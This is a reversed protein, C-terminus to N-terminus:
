AGAEHDDCAPIDAVFCTGKGNTSELWLRGGHREVIERSLYLGLGLGSRHSAAHAQFYREFIREQQEAPVGIGQDRVGLRAREPTPKTLEVEIRGGDPSYKIANDLLNTVVQEFRFPDVRAYIEGGAALSFQHRETQAQAQEVVRRVLPTLNEVHRDLELRGSDLRSMELLQNVLDSLTQAQRHITHVARQYRAPDLEQGRDSVRMLLEAFGRLSTVPTKLEHAATSLFDDRLRVSRIAEEAEERALRAAEYLRAHDLALAVRDAVIQLFAIDAEAFRRRYRTGVELVGTVQGEILLPTGLLSRVGEERMAADLEEAEGVDDLVIPRREAAIRGAFGCGLPLSAGAELERAGKVAWPILVQEDQQLSLIAVADVSLAESIREMLAALLGDFDLHALAAETVAQIARLQELAAQTEARAQRELEFLAAREDEARKRESLDRTVKAFGVHEGDDTFLATIVVSAWFRSGDKRLRWGEEEWRGEAVAVRLEYEAKGLRIEAPPYFISFHKGIAEDSRYGKLRRAGENWTRIHGEPDLLFIAYDKVSEVLLRFLDDRQATIPQM